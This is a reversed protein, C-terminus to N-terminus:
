DAEYNWLIGLQKELIDLSKSLYKIRKYDRYLFEDVRDNGNIYHESEVWVGHISKLYFLKLGRVLEDKTTPYTKTYSVLYLKARRIDETTIDSSLFSYMLSRWLEYMRPSYDTKEFDFVFSVKSDPGFFVNRDLYDGHILHNSPLKLEEYVISNEKVLKKKTELSELALKDFDTPNAKKKLEAYIMEIKELSKEKNWAKFREKIPLNSDKGLLHIKGLTEGLSIIARDTFSGRELQVGSVFPFLAFYGNEFLFFTSGENNEIPLIVPIGGDAFYKKASHIEEIRERRGFRYRKLFYKKDNSFLVHNESLFGKTVKESSHPQLDYLRNIESILNEM